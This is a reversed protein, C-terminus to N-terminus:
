RTKVTTEHSATLIFSLRRMRYLRKILTWLYRARSSIHNVADPSVGGGFHHQRQAYTFHLHLFSISYAAIVRLRHRNDPHM